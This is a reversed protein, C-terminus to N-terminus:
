FTRFLKNITSSRSKEYLIKPKTRWRAGKRMRTRRQEGGSLRDVTATDCNYDVTKMLAVLQAPRRMIIHDM